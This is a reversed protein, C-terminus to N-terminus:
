QPATSAHQITRVVPSSFAPPGLLPLYTPIQSTDQPSPNALLSLREGGRGRMRKRDVIAIIATPIEEDQLQRPIYYRNANLLLIERDCDSTSWLHGVIAM